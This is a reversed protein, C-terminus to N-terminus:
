FFKKKKRLVHATTTHVVISFAPPFPAKRFTVKVKGTESDGGHARQEATRETTAHTHIIRRVCQPSSPCALVVM